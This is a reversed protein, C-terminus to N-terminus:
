EIEVFGRDVFAISTASFAVGLEQIIQGSATPATATATGPSSASLYYTTGATLSTLEENSGGKYVTANQGSTVAAKVFGNADRGNSADAKRVSATGAVDYVNVFDGAALNETAPLTDVDAGIGTPMLSEDIRGDSGTAIIKNADGAGASAAIAEVLRTIGSTAKTLFKNTSM